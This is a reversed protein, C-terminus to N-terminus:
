FRLVYSDVCAVVEVGGLCVKFWLLKARRIRRWSEHAMRIRPFRFLVNALPASDLALKLRHAASPVGSRM